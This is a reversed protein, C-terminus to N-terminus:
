LTYCIGGFPGRLSRSCWQEMQSDTVFWEARILPFFKSFCSHYFKLFSLFMTQLKNLACALMQNWVTYCKTVDHHKVRKHLITIDLYYKWHATPPFSDQLLSTLLLMSLTNFLVENLCCSCFVQRSTIFDNKQIFNKLGRYCSVM